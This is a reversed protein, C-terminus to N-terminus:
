PVNTGQFLDKAIKITFSIRYEIGSSLNDQFWCLFIEAIHSSILVADSVKGKIGTNCLYYLMLTFNSVDFPM